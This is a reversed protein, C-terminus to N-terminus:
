VVMWSDRTLAELMDIARQRRALARREYRDLVRLADLAQRCEAPAALLANVREIAAVRTARIRSLMVHCEAIAAAQDLRRPDTDDPCILRVIRGIGEAIGADDFRVAELGHRLANRSSQAKGAATRPGTQGTARHTARRRSAPAM